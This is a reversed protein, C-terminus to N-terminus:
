GKMLGEDVSLEGGGWLLFVYRDVSGELIRREIELGRASSKAIDSNAVGGMKAIIMATIIANVEEEVMELNEDRLIGPILALKPVQLCGIEIPDNFDEEEKEDVDENEEGEEEGGGEGLESLVTPTHLSFISPPSPFISPSSLM